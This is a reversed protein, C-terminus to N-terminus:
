SYSHPGEKNFPIKVPLFQRIFRTSTLQEQKAILVLQLSEFHKLVLHKKHLPDYFEFRVIPKCLFYHKLNANQDKECKKLTTSEKAKFAFQIEANFGTFLFVSSILAAKFILRKLFAQNYKVSNLAM